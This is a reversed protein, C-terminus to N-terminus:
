DIYVDALMGPKLIEVDSLIKVKVEFLVDEKTSKTVTNKPTFQGESAIYVIKGKIPKDVFNVKISVEKGINLKYLQKEPIYIKVFLNHLDAVQGILGGALVVEGPRVYVATVTGDIPSLINGKEVAIRALQYNAEAQKLTWEAIESQTKPGNKVQDYKIK